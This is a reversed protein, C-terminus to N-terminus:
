VEPVPSPTDYTNGKYTISAATSLTTFAAPTLAPVFVRFVKNLDAGSGTRQFYVGRPAIGFKRRQGAQSVQVEVNPDTIAGAPATNGTIGAKASDIRIKYIAGSDSQYKTRITAM